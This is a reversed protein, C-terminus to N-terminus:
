KDIELTLNVTENEETVVSGDTKKYSYIGQLIIKKNKLEIIDYLTPSTSQYQYSVVDETSTTPQFAIYEKTKIGANKNRSLFYWHGQENLTYSPNYPIHLNKYITYSGNKNISYTWCFTGTLGGQNTEVDLIGGTNLNDTEQIDPDGYTITGSTVKWNGCLRDKRPIFSIFPDKSGKKCSPYLGSIIIIVSIFIIKTKM